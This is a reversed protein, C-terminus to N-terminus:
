RAAPSLRVPVQIQRTVDSEAFRIGGIAKDACMMLTPSLPPSFIGEHVAGSAVVTLKLSSEVSFRVGQSTAQKRYCRDLERLLASV